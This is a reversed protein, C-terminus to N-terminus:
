LVNLHQTSIHKLAMWSIPKYPHNLVKFLNVHTLVHANQHDSDPKSFAALSNLKGILGNGSSGAGGLKSPVCTNPQDAETRCVQLYPSAPNSKSLPGVSPVNLGFDHMPKKGLSKLRLGDIGHSSQSGGGARVVDLTRNRKKAESGLSSSKASGNQSKPLSKPIRKVTGLMWPGFTSETGKELEDNTRRPEGDVMSKDSEKDSGENSSSCMKRVHGYKGCAFYITPLAEYEVKGITNGIVELVNRKYMFGLLRPLKVWAMVVIPYPQLPSFDKAWPQVTLYTM